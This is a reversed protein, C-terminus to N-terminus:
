NDTKKTKTLQKKLSDIEDQLAKLKIQEKLEEIEKQLVQAADTMEVKQEKQEVVPAQAVAQQTTEDQCDKSLMLIMFLFGIGSLQFLGSFMYLDSDRSLSSIVFMILMIFMSGYCATKFVTFTESNKIKKFFSLIFVVITFALALALIIFCMIVLGEVWDAYYSYYDGTFPNIESGMSVEDYIHSGVVIAGIFFTLSVLFSFIKNALGM